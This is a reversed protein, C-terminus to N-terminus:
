APSNASDADSPLAKKMYQENRSSYGAKRYAGQAALNRAGTLLHIEDVNYKDRLIRELHALMAGACGKRRHAPAVYMETVEAVPAPYCFSHHVQACCFGAPEGDAEAILVIETRTLLSQRVDSETVGTDGNFAANLACLAAADEPLATRIRIPM